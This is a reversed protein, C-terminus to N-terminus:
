GSGGKFKILANKHLLYVRAESLYMSKAILKFPEGFCYRQVLIRAEVGGVKQVIEIALEPIRILMEERLNALESETDIIKQTVTEVRSETSKAHPLGDFQRLPMLTAKLIELQEELKKIKGRLDRCCCIDM